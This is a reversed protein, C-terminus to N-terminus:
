IGHPNYASIDRERLEANVEEHIQRIETEIEVLRPRFSELLLPHERLDNVMEQADDMIQRATRGKM